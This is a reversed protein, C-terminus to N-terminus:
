LALEALKQVYQNLGEQLSKQCRYGNQYLIAVLFSHITEEYLKQWQKGYHQHWVLLREYFNLSAKTYAESTFIDSLATITGRLNEEVFHDQTLIATQIDALTGQRLLQMIHDLEPQVEDACFRKFFSDLLDLCSYGFLNNQVQNLRQLKETNNLLLSDTVVKTQEMDWALVATLHEFVEIEESFEHALYFTGSQGITLLSHYYGFEGIAVCAEESFILIRNFASIHPHTLDLTPMLM